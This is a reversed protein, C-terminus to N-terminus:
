PRPRSGATRYAVFNYIHTGIGENLREIPHLVQAHDFGHLAFGRAELSDLMERVTYGFARTNQDFAEFLITLPGEGRSLVGAAGDLALKEAGEVDLKIFRVDGIGYEAAADDVRVTRVTEWRAIEQDVREIAALSSLATDKAVAFRAQGTTDSVAADIVTVNTLHNIAINHRLLELAREGPEFAYVHGAEGVARSALVTYLGANAGLDLVVDGVTLHERVFRVEAPEFGGAFLDRGIASALPYDFRAGGPLRFSYIRDARSLATVLRWLLHRFRFRVKSLLQQTTM